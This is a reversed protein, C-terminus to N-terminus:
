WLHWKGWALVCVALLANTVAHAVVAEALRGTRLAVMAYLLGAATGAIWREGHMLGFILSSALLAFWTFTRFSVAEFDATVFRRLLFGRFALEEALPVTVVAALVRTVIWLVRVAPVAGALAAPMGSDPTHVPLADLAIWLAFVSVGAAPGMWGFKWELAQYQRRFVWLGVAAAALRLGYLWEFGASASRALMGAALIMLFPMLYAAAANETHKAADEELRRASFWPVRRAALSFGFAVLNFAIWGAQSHFGRTAIERAGAHGILILGAIRASNLLFLVVTAAPLLLLAQPFRCDKRCLWLWLVGFILLLAVGELGSCEPSIIATFRHTGLRLRAPQIVLEAVAPRLLLRVLTFTLKAAPRWLARSLIGLSSALVAAAGAYLWLKGTRRVLQTWVSWPAMALAALLVAALGTLLFGAALVDPALAASSQGYLAASIAAFAAITALHAAALSGSLRSRAASVAIEALAAKYQLCAFTAFLAAFAIACRVSWPGWARIAGILWGRKHLLSEGDLYISAAVTELGLVATLLLLRM